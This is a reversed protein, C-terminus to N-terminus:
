AADSARARELSDAEECIALPLAVRGKAVELDADGLM